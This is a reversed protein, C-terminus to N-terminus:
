PEHVVVVIDTSISSGQGFWCCIDWFGLTLPIDALVLGLIIRDFIEMKGRSDAYGAYGRVLASGDSLTWKDEKFIHDYHVALHKHKM